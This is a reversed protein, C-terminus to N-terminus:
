FMVGAYPTVASYKSLIDDAAVMLKCDSGIGNASPQLKIECM